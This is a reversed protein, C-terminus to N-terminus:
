LGNSSHNTKNARWRVINMYITSSTFHKRRSIIFCHCLLSANIRWSSKKYACLSLYSSPIYVQTPIGMYLHTMNLQYIIQQCMFFSLDIDSGNIFLDIMFLFKCDCFLNRHLFINKNTHIHANVTYMSIIVIIFIVFYWKAILLRKM